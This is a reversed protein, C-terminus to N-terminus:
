ADVEEFTLYLLTDSYKPNLTHTSFTPTNGKAFSLEHLVGMFQNNLSAESTKTGSASNHHNEGNAGIYLDESALSFSTTGSHTGEKVVKNNFFINIRKMADNYTIGVHYSNNVYPTDQPAYSFVDDGTLINAPVASLTVTTSVISSVTGLSNFTFGSKEFLEQGVFYDTISTATFYNNGASHSAVTDIKDRIYQGKVNIGGAIFDTNTRAPQAHSPFIVADSTLTTTTDTTIEVELKYKAPNNKTTTKWLGSDLVSLTDNVLFLKLNTSHFIAMKHNARILTSSANNPALYYGGYFGGIPLTKKSDVINANENGNIEYPTIIADLSFSGEHGWIGYPHDTSTLSDSEVDPINDSYDIKINANCMVPFVLGRQQGLLVRQM